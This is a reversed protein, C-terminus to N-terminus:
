TGEEEMRKILEKLIESERERLDLLINKMKDLLTAKQNKHFMALMMRARNADDVLPAYKSSLEIDWGRKEEIAKIRDLMCKKHEWVPRLTRWDVKEAPISGDKLKDLYMILFDHVAIGEVVGDQDLSYKDATQDTYVKLNRLIMKEDLHVVVKEKMKFATLTGYQKNEICYNLGEILCDQPIRILNFLWNIDYAAISYTKDNNDYGCIIGTHPMHRIGYWCKGPMYFDDIGTFFVYFGQDLMIKIMDTYHPYGFRSSVEYHEICSFSTIGGRPLWIQPTTLGGLFKRTCGITTCQNLYANYATPHGHMAFGPAAHGPTFSFVPVCFPLSVSDPM